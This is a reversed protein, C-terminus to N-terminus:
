AEAPSAELPVVLYARGRGDPSDGVWALTRQRLRCWAPVDTEAAPDDALLLLRDEPRANVMRALAVVPMPCRTGREDLVRDHPPPTPRSV